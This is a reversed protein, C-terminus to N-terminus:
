GHEMRWGDCWQRLDSGVNVKTMGWTARMGIGQPSNSHCLPATCVLRAM